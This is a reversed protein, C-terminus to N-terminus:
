DWPNVEAPFERRIAHLDATFADADEELRPLQRLFANLDGIKLPSQPLAPTLYAVVNDDRQLEVAIGESCVRNLLGAFNREAESVTLRHM